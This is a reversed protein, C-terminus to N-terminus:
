KNLRIIKKLWTSVLSPMFWFISKSGIPRQRHRSGEKEETGCHEQLPWSLSPISDTAFPPFNDILMASTILDAPQILDLLWVHNTLRWALVMMYSGPRFCDGSIDAEQMWDVGWFVAGPLWFSGRVAQLEPASASLVRVWCEEASVSLVWCESEGNLCSLSRSASGPSHVSSEEGAPIITWCM